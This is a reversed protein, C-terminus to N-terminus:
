QRNAVLQAEVRLNIERELVDGLKDGPQCGSSRVSFWALVFRVRGLCGPSSRHLLWGDDGGSLVSGADPSRNTVIEVAVASGVASGVAWGVASGVATM